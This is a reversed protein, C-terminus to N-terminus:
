SGNSVIGKSNCGGVSFSQNVLKDSAGIHEYIKWSYSAHYWFILVWGDSFQYSAFVPNHVFYTASLANIDYM